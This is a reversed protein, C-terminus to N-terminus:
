DQDDALQIQLEFAFRIDITFSPYPSGLTSALIPAGQTAEDSEMSQIHKAM